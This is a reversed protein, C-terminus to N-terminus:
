SIAELAEELQSFFVERADEPLSQMASVTAEEIARQRDYSLIDKHTRLLTTLLTSSATVMEKMERVPVGARMKGGPMLYNRMAHVAAIQMQVEGGMDFEPGYEAAEQARGQLSVWLRGVQEDTLEDSLTEITVVHDELDIGSDGTDFERLADQSM